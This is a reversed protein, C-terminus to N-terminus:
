IDFNENTIQKQNRKRYQPKPKDDENKNDEKNDDNENVPETLTRQNKRKIKPQNDEENENQENEENENENEENQENNEKEEEKNENIKETLTKLNRKRIQVKPQNDEENSNQNSLDEIEKDISENIEKEIDKNNKKSSKTQKPKAIKAPFQEFCINLNNKSAIQKIVDKLKTESTTFLNDHYIIKDDVYTKKGKKEVPVQNNKIQEDVEEKTENLKLCYDNIFIDWLNKTDSVDIFYITEGLGNQSIKKVDNYINEIEITPNANIIYNIYIGYKYAKHYYICGNIKHLSSAKIVPM